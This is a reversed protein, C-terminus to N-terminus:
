NGRKQEEFRSLIALPRADSSLQSTDVRVDGAAFDDMVRCLQDRWTRLTDSWADDAQWGDGATRYSIERSDINILALGATPAELAEAYVVLQLDSLVNKRDAFHRPLGTKYDIVLCRGDPLEDIRDIRIGLSVPGHLFRTRYEVARVVFASRQSELDLFRFMLRRLRERELRLIQLGSADLGSRYGALATDVASGIRREREAPSWGIIARSDPLGALLQHLTDHIMNGRMAASLGSPIPDILSVGLRGFVFASFPEKFQRQVTYAGGRVQEDPSVPPASDPDSGVTHNGVLATAFRGPDTAGALPVTALGDLLQSPAVEGDGQNRSWSVVCAGAARHLRRLSDRSYALTDAPSSDPMGYELQIVRSIFPSPSRKPPWKTADMGTIWIGDFQMGAAELVGMVQVGGGSDTEPQWLTDGAIRRLFTVAKRMSMAPIVQSAAALENLLEKWRNVLQFEASNATIAGPWGSQRLVADLKELCEPPSVPDAVSPAWEALQRLMRSFSSFEPSSLQKSFTGILDDPMWTRDPLKRLERELGLRASVQGEAVSRSRLLLSVERTTLGFCPWRLLLLAVNIAPLDALKRGYSVNVAARHAETGFQWGPVFGERVHDAIAGADTELAPCVIAISANENQELQRRAWAGAARFEAFETEFEALAAPVAVQGRQRTGTVKTQNFVAAIIKATAPGPRDFGAFVCPDFTQGPSEAIWRSIQQRLSGPDIWHEAALRSEFSRAAAAFIREDRTSAHRALEELPICWERVRQWATLAQRALGGSNPIGAPLERLFCEDWILESALSGIRRPFVSRTSFDDVLQELWADIHLVAPTQWAM